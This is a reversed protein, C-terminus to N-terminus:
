DGVFDNNTPLLMAHGCLYRSRVLSPQKRKFYNTTDKDYNLVVNWEGCLIIPEKSLKLNILNERLNTCNLLSPFIDSVHGQKLILLQKGRNWSRPFNQKLKNTVNREAFKIPPLYPILQRSYHKTM